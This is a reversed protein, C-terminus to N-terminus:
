QSCKYTVTQLENDGASRVVIKESSFGSLTSSLSAINESFFQPTRANGPNDQQSMDPRDVASTFRLFHQRERRHEFGAVFRAPRAEVRRNMNALMASILSSDDSVILYRGRVAVVLTELGDLEYYGNRPRWGVGLEATTLNPRVFNALASRAAAESWASGGALAVASLVKVFVGDAARETSQVQLVAQVSNERLMQKLASSRSDSANQRPPQDIRTELDLSSGTEGSTLQPQPALPAAPTTVLHPALLKTQLPDFCSEISPCDRAEYVGTNDPVLRVLDAVAGSEDVSSVADAARKLLVREERYEQNSRYLDSIAATYQKMDSVNQQIWYSRFYPSPVIKELNLVMRLDGAAGAAAVSQSWWPDSEISRAVADHRSGGTLLQLAGAMLDERTSLLLYDGSIAFAVERESDPTRRIYFTTGGASRSEFKSRTQWLQSQLSNTSPLRTIYLFQIKGIDYLALASESGAIQGLFKADPPLGAATAFQSGADRLRLFLRSRSFVQYNSSGLWRQKEPSKNWDALLSSFDRAQLYLVAGSPISKSLPQVPAPVTQLVAWGLGITVAGIVLTLLLNACKRTRMATPIAPVIARNTM